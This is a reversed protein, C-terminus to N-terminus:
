FQANTWLRGANEQLGLHKPVLSIPLSFSTGRQNDM